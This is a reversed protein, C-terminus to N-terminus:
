VWFQQSVQAPQQVPVPTRSAYWAMMIGSLAILVGFSVLETAKIYKM